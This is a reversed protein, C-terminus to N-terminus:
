PATQSLMMYLLLAENGVILREERDSTMVSQGKFLQYHLGDEKYSTIMSQGKVFQYHLGEENYLTIM